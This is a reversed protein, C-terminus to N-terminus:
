PLVGWKWLFLLGVLVGMIASAFLYPTLRRQRQESAHEAIMRRQWPTLPILKM